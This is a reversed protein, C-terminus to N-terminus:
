LHIRDEDKCGTQKMHMKINNFKWRHRPLAPQGKRESEGVLINYRETVEGTPEGHWGCM